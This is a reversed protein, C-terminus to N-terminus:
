ADRALEDRMNIMAAAAAAPWGRCAMVRRGDPAAEQRGAVQARSGRRISRLRRRWGLRRGRVSAHHASCTLAFGNGPDPPAPGGTSTAARRSTRSTTRSSSSGAHMGTRSWDKGVRCSKLSPSCTDFGVRERCYSAIPNCGRASELVNVDFGGLFAVVIQQALERCFGRRRTSLSPGRRGPRQPPPGSPRPGVRPHFHVHSLYAATGPRRSPWAAPRRRDAPAPVPCRYQPLPPRMVLRRCTRQAVDAIYRYDRCGVRLVKLPQRVKDSTDVEPLRKKM